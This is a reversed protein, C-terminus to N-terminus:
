AQLRYVMLHYTKYREFTEKSRHGSFYKYQTKRLRKRFFWLLMRTSFPYNSSLYRHITIGAPRARNMLWDNLLQLNPSVRTTIDDDKMLRFPFRSMTELFDKHPHGGGFSKDGPGGDGHAATKFFDCILLMGGPKLLQQVLPLSDSPKIYQFSESFLVVDYQGRAENVPFQEFKCEFIRPQYQGGEGIRRRVLTGLDKAPIVGDALYGRDIMQRILHGTGCGVDLVRVNGSSPPLQKLIMDSYRQQAVRLNAFSLELGPEWLGYHLDEVNGLQQALVLGLERSHMKEM